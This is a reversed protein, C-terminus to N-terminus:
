PLNQLKKLYFDGEQGLRQLIIRQRLYQTRSKELRYIMALLYERYASKEPSKIIQVYAERPKGTKVLVESYLLFARARLPDRAEYHKLFIKLEKGAEEDKGLELYLKGLYFRARIADSKRFGQIAKQSQGSHMLLLGHEYHLLAYHPSKIQFGLACDLIQLKLRRVPTSRVLVYALEYYDPSRSYAESYNVFYESLFPYQGGQLFRLSNKRFEDFTKPPFAFCLQVLFFFLLLSRKRWLVTAILSQKSCNRM